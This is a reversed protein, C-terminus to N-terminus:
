ADRQVVAPIDGLLRDPSAAVQSELWARCIRRGALRATGSAIPGRRASWFGRQHRRPGYWLLDAVSSQCDFPCGNTRQCRGVLPCLRPANTARNEVFASISARGASNGEDTELFRRPGA